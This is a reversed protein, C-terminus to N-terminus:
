RFGTVTDVLAPRGKGVETIARRLASAVEKPDEIPGEAHWGLSRALGAFDPAPESIAQGIWSHDTPRGRQEAIRIQHEWDNYYARNNYMVALMPLKSNAAVWLAGADYMLDGDPQIDVVLKGTGRYALAVGLSIGIQTATGLASGPHQDPKEFDWLKLAWNELTNATLVWDTDQVAEWVESALRATTMPREDWGDKAEETWQQRAAGQAAEVRKRREEARARAAGDGAMRRKMWDILEPLALATDAIINLDVPM